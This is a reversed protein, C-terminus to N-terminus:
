AGTAARSSAPDRESASRWSGCTTGGTWSAPGDWRWYLTRIRRAVPAKGKVLHGVAFRPPDSPAVFAIRRSDPSWAIETVGHRPAVLTWPEGGDLDMVRVVPSRDPEDPWSRIFALRSGDPSVQPMTDRVAGHTLARAPGGRSGRSALPVTWLHSRYTRGHVSRRVVVAFSGDPLAHDELVVQRLITGPTV